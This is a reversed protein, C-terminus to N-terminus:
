KVKQNISKKVLQKVANDLNSQLMAEFQKKTKKLETLNMETINKKVTGRERCFKNIKACNMLKDEPTDGYSMGVEYSLHYIQRVIDRCEAQYAEKKQDTKGMLYNILVKAEEFTIDKTSTVRGKTLSSIIGQKDEPEFGLKAFM